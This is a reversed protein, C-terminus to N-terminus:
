FCGVVGQLPSRRSGPQRSATVSPIHELQLEEGPSSLERHHRRCFHALLEIAEARQRTLWAGEKVLKTM